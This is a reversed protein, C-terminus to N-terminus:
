IFACFYKIITERTADAGTEGLELGKSIIEMLNSAVSLCLEATPSCYHMLRSLTEILEILLIDTHCLIYEVNSKDQNIAFLIAKM